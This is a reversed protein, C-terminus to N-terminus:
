RVFVQGADVVLAQGSIVRAQDSALFVAAGAVDQQKIELGLATLSTYYPIVEEPKIGRKRAAEAIYQSNWIKSGEFVNGPCLANARIGHRGLELALGRMLQLEGAKTVNYAANNKSAELGTKSSVFLLSGGTRQRIMWRAAERAALFYGTLNIELAKRFAAVPFEEIPHAPAIGAAAVLVDIGGYTLVTQRFALALSEESTVDAKLAICRPAGCRDKIIGATEQASPLDIDTLAIHAGAQALGVAIGRGLGSGAGTVLAVQGSLPGPAGAEARALKRRYAEVEWNHIYEAEAATLLKPGGFALTRETYELQAKFVVTTTKISKESDGVVLFGQGPVLVTRPPEGHAKVYRAVAPGTAGVPSAPLILPYALCYVVADPTSNIALIRGADQRSSLRKATSDAVFQVYRSESRASALERRLEVITEVLEEDSVKAERQVPGAAAARRSAYLKECEEVIAKTLAVARQASDSSVFLGHNELFLAEPMRRKRRRFKTVEKSCRVALPHGPNTYPVWVFTFKGRRALEECLAKSQKSCLVGNVAIPHIHVVYRGLMAHLAAECSPRAAPDPGGRVADFLAKLVHPERAADSMAAVKRDDLLKELPRLEMTVYGREPAMDRLGTGSAKIHMLTRRANKASTNGGGAQVLRDDGGVARSIEVLRLVDPDTRKSM